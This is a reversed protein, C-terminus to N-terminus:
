RLVQLQGTLQIAVERAGAPISSATLRGDPWRVQLSVPRNPPVALVQVASDQSWYGAGAHIERAPGAARGDAMLRLVAGVAAPNGPPGQLRVRLGPRAGVNRYLKTEAGNQTVVLDVRGDADYDSVAAGRQEGYIALGSQQGPVPAFGGQGNGRLLLGRGADYRPTDPQVAFFNQSLVLDEHGDGDLDAVCVAFAPAFQAEVPLPRAEFFSGRNLFVTSELWTAQLQRMRHFGAGCIEQVSAQAFATYTPFQERLGPLGRVFFSLMRNPVIKALAPDYYAEILDETGNGDLDGAFLYLPHARHWQYPTNQGWNAAVLDLRGDEDFDGANLGTWWGTLLSLNTSPKPGPTPQKNAALAVPWDWPTLTGQQNRFVRLPGWECALVLDPDADGDLDTFVAGSVLGVEKLQATNAADLEFREAVARFVLCSAPEPYKGPIVRGGVLLDLDSDGDLDALAMPGPSSPAAPLVDEVRRRHLDYFRACSGIALGDEYNASGVILVTQGPARPWALVTTQDRTVPQTFPAQRWPSFGGQGDNRFAALQGGKGSAIVLDDWGDGDLDAWAVGPGLQSLKRSLLPQREYDDFAEEHHAHSLLASVDQFLPKLAPVPSLQPQPRSVQALPEPLEYISNPQANSLLSRAGSPWLVEVTLCNTLHGAAFSRRAQDCSLYRGAGIIQQSQPVPGGRVWVKAGIGATNPPRGRLQIALRPASTDNRYLGAPGNLNNVVLDLDGDNDLDALAAGNSITPTDFGWAAGVEEFTLDGRNRYALNCTVYRPFLRRAELIEDPTMTRETRLRRLQDAVDLNRGERENGNCILIDEWGDLDVDLFLTSWAWESAQVGALQSIEAYTGDGRNLSLVNLLYQPRTAIQGPWPVPPNRDAMVTLRHVHSRSLMDTVFLDDFGDRNIDAVDVSMAFLATKRLALTPLAQFRWGGRNLWIRDPTEFDNCVYIDPWGDDNLDRIMVTLGWDFPDSTLPQGTEDLFAGGTFPVRAFNTGGVNRYLADVQGLESIGGGPTVIFRNTLDPETTPRGNVRAVVRRGGVDKFQFYTQPMDMLARVRYNAVYLDLYGDGDLDGLALSTGGLEPNLRAWLRFQAQGDNQFVFTGSGVSNVILDLDGDGDLDALAAGSADIDPLAVGARVTIDEFRWGGLNRYLACPNDLGCFYLDCWGDGDVDGCAVGSGNLLIQNRLHRRQALRNTFTVGTQEPSLLTFGVRASARVTCALRRYGPGSEWRLPEAVALWDLGLVSGLCAWLRLLWVRGPKLKRWGGCGVNLGCATSPDKAKFAM